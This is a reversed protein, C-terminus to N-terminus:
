KNKFQEFWKNFPLEKFNETNPYGSFGKKYGADFAIKMDEQSYMTKEQWKAGKQFSELAIYYKNTNENQKDIAYNEAAEELTEKKIKNSKQQKFEGYQELLRIAQANNNASLVFKIKQLTEEEPTEQKPEEEPIIIEYENRGIEKLNMLEVEECNPNNVFWELFEDDISQVGNKILDQDTTLIIKKYGNSKENVIQLDEKSTKSIDLFSSFDSPVNYEGEKIVENSTIYINQYRRLYKVDDLYLKNNHCDSLRSIKDTTLVYINKM